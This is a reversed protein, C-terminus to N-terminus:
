GFVFIIICIPCSFVVKIYLNVANTKLTIDESSLHM